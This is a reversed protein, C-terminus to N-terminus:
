SIANQFQESFNTLLYRLTGQSLAIAEHSQRM